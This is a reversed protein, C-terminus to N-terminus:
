RARYRRGWEFRRHPRQRPWSQVPINFRRGGNLTDNGAGGDLRDHGIGGDLTDNGAGGTLHVSFLFDAASLDAIDVGELLISAAFHDTLDITVGDATSVLELEDFSFYTFHILDILDEGVTFDSIIDDGNTSGFVFTDNGAGGHFRDNGGRSELTDNGAGGNLSDDDNDGYDLLNDDGPGGNLSDDDASGQLYDNGPGGHLTDFGGGDYLQDDGDDGNLEDNGDGGEPRDDGPGGPGGTLVIRPTLMMNNINM